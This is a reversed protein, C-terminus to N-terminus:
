YAAMECTLDGLDLVSPRKEPVDIYVGCQGDALPAALHYRGTEVSDIEFRGGRGTRLKLDDTRESRLMLETNEVPALGGATRARLTGVVSSLKRLGFSVRLGAGSAPVVTVKNTSMSVSIPVDGDEIRIENDTLAPLDAIFLEGQANTKGIEQNNRYVRV